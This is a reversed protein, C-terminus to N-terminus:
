AFAEQMSRWAWWVAWAALAILAATYITVIVGVVVKGVPTFGKSRWLFPLGLAGTALFLLGLVVWRNDLLDRKEPPPAPSTLRAGCHPCVEAAAAVEASCHPCLFQAANVPEM